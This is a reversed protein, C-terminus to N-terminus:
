EFVVDFVVVPKNIKYSHWEAAFGENQFDNVSLQYLSKDPKKRKRKLIFNDQHSQALQEMAFLKNVDKRNNKDALPLFITYAKKHYGLLSYVYSSILLSKKDHLLCLRDLFAYLHAISEKSQKSDRFDKSLLIYRQMPTEKM